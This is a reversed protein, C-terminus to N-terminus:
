RAVTLRISFDVECSTASEVAICSDNGSGGHGVDNGRGGSLYDAGGRGDLTDAGERGDLYNALGNGSIVDNFRSGVVWEVSGLTDNGEGTAEGATLDVAVASAAGAFTATDTGAGGKLSDDGPGGSLVDTGEDGRIDDAGPGGSISDNGQGGHLADNGGAGVITDDGGGGWITNPGSSGRISDAGATGKVNEIGSLRDIDGNALAIGATLDVNVSRRGRFEITDNGKGGILRDPSTRGIITDAGPGGNIWDVGTSGVLRDNGPGGCVRGPDGMNVTDDGGRALGTGWVRRMHDDGPSGVWAPDHGGCQPWGTGAIANWNFQGPKQFPEGISFLWRSTDTWRVIGRDANQSKSFRVTTNATDALETVILEVEGFDRLALHQGSPSLALEEASRDDVRKTLSLDATARIEISGLVQIALKTGSSDIGGLRQFDGSTASATVVPTAGTVDLVQLMHSGHLVAFGPRDPTVAFTPQFYADPHRFVDRSGPDYIVLDRQDIGCRDGILVKGGTAAVTEPCAEPNLALEDITNLTSIDVQVVRQQSSLALWFTAGDEGLGVGHAGSTGPVRDLVRGRLDVMLAEKSPSGEAIIAVGNKWDVAFDSLSAIPLDRSLSKNPKAGRNAAPAAPSTASAITAAIMALVLSLRILSM